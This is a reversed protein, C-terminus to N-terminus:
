VPDDPRKIPGYCYKYKKGSGCPCQGNFKIKGQMRSLAVRRNAFDESKEKINTENYSNMDKDNIFRFDVSTILDDENFFVELLLREKENRVGMTSLVYETLDFEERLARKFVM